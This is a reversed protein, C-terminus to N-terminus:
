YPFEEEASMFDANYLDIDGQSNRHIWSIAPSFKTTQLLWSHVKVQYVYIRSSELSHEARKWINTYTTNGCPQRHNVKQGLM